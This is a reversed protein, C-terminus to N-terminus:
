SDYMLYVRFDQKQIVKCFVMKNETVKEADDAIRLDFKQKEVERLM